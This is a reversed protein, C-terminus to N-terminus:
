HISGAAPITVRTEEELRWPLTSQSHTYEFYADGISDPNTPDFIAFGHFHTDAAGAGVMQTYVPSKADISALDARVHDGVGDIRGGSATLEGQAPAMFGPQKGPRMVDRDLNVAVVLSGGIKGPGGGTGRITFRFILATQGDGAQVDIENVAEEGGVIERSLPGSLKNAPISFDRIAGILTYRGEEGATTLTNTDFTLSIAQSGEGLKLVLTRNEPAEGVTDGGGGCALCVMAGLWWAISQFVTRKNM